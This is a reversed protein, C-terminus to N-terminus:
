KRWFIGSWDITTVLSRISHKARFDDVAAKCTPLAYDDIIVFGGPSVKPYLHDLVLWSSEYLYDDLRLVSIPDVKAKPITDRFWGEVFRTREDMLDFREFNEKVEAMM